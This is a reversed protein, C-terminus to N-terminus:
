GEERAKVREKIHCLNEQEKTALLRHASKTQFRHAEIFKIQIEDFQNESNVMGFNVWEEFLLKSIPDFGDTGLYYLDADCLIEALLSHPLQPIRTALIMEHVSSIVHDSVGYSELLTSAIKCSEEEHGSYVKLFGTDHLLSATKLLNLHSTGSLNERFFLEESKELVIKTHEISHYSLRKDLGNLM